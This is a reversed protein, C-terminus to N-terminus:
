PHLSEEVRELQDAPTEVSANTEEVIEETVSRLDNDRAFATLQRDAGSCSRVIREIGELADLCGLERAHEDLEALTRLLHDRIPEPNGDLRLLRADLGYRIARWKNESLIGDEVATPTAHASPEVEAAQKVLAQVYGALAVADDLRTAADMARVEVTGLAPHLRVDFWLETYSNIAGARKLAGVYRAFDSYREFPPPLGARPFTAFICQRTSRLGTTMGRWFPSSASLAILEPVHRRLLRAVRIATERNPVGVHVHLGFILERRAPYQVGDVLRRYRPQGSIPQDEYLAFPHTGASALLLGQEASTSAVHRRLRALEASLPGVAECIPTHGEIESQFLEPSVQAAFEGAEEVHLVSEARPALDLTEPDLLMYEEEVGLSYPTSEGFADSFVSIRNDDSV